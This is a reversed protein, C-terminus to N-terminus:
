LENEIQDCLTRILALKNRETNQDLLWFDKLEMPTFGQDSMMGLALDSILDLMAIKSARNIEEQDVSSLFKSTLLTM